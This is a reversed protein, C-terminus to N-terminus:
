NEFGALVFRYSRSDSYTKRSGQIVRNEFITLGADEFSQIFDAEYTVKGFDITTLYKLLPKIFEIFPKREGEFTQTVIVQGKPKMTNRSVHRLAEAPDPMLM